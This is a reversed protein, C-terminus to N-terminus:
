VGEERKWKKKVLGDTSGGKCAMPRRWREAKGARWDERLLSVSCGVEGGDVEQGLRGGFRREGKRIKFEWWRWPSSWQEMPKVGSHNALRM